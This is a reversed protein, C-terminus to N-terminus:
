LASRSPLFMKPINFLCDAPPELRVHNSIIAVFGWGVRASRNPGLEADVATQGRVECSCHSTEGKVETILQLQGARESGGSKM